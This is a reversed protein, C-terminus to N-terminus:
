QTRRRRECAEHDECAERSALARRGAASRDLRRGRRNRLDDVLGIALLQKLQVGRAYRTRREAFHALDFQGRHELRVSLPLQGAQTLLFVVEGRQRLWDALRDRRAPHVGTLVWRLTRSPWQERQSQWAATDDPPLAVVETVRDASCRGWKIRTNGVDVVIDANM